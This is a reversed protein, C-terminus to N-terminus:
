LITELDQVYMCFYMGLERFQPLMVTLTRTVSDSASSRLFRMETVHCSM